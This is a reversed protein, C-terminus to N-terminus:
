LRRPQDLGASEVTSEAIQNRDFIAMMDGNALIEWAEIAAAYEDGKIYSWMQPYRERIKLTNEDSISFSGRFSFDFWALLLLVIPTGVFFAGWGICALWIIVGIAIVKAALGLGFVINKIAKLALYTDKTSEHRKKASMHKFILQVVRSACVRKM